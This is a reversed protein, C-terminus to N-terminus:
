LWVLPPRFYHPPSPVCQDWLGQNGGSGHVVNLMVPLLWPLAMAIAPGAIPVPDQTAACLLNEIIGGYWAAVRPPTAGFEEGVTSM